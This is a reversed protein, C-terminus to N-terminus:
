AAPRRSRRCPALEVEDVVEGVRERDRHDALQEAHRALVLRAELAQTSAITSETPGVRRGLLQLLLGVVRELLEARVQDLQRLAAAGVWAVVQQGPQDGVVARVPPHLAAFQDGRQDQQEDGAVLGGDVEDGVAHERQQAVGVHQLPQAVLGVQADAQDLFQQAVLRRHVESGM